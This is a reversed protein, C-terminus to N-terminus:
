KSVELIHTFFESVVDEAVSQARRLSRSDGSYHKPQVTFVTRGDEAVMSFPRLQDMPQRLLHVQKLSKLIAYNDLHQANTSDFKSGLLWIADPDLRSSPMSSLLDHLSSLFKVSSDLELPDLGIPVLMSDSAQLTNLLAADLHPGCDILILDFQDRIPDIVFRSLLESMHMGTETAYQYASLSFFADSSGAPLLFLGESSTPKIWSRVTDPTARTAIAEIASHQQNSKGIGAFGFAVSTSGQPDMDIVAVRLRHRILNKHHVLGTAITACSTTKGVGGKLNLFAVTKGDPSGGLKAKFETFSPLGATEYIARVDGLSFTHPQMSNKEAPIRSFIRGNDRLIKIANEVRARTMEPLRQVQYLTYSAAQYGDEIATDRRESQVDALYNLVLHASDRIKEFGMLRQQRALASGM